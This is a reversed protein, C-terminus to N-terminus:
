QIETGEKLSEVEMEMGTGDRLQGEMRLGVRLKCIIKTGNRL